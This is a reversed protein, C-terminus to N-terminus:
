AKGSFSHGWAMTQWRNIYHHKVRQMVRSNNIEAAIRTREAMAQKLVQDCSNLVHREKEELQRIEEAFLGSKLWQKDSKLRNNVLAFDDILAARERLLRRLGRMERKLVLRGQIITNADIKDLIAEKQGLYKRVEEQTM